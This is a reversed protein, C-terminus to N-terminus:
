RGPLPTEMPPSSASTLPRADLPTERLARVIRRGLGIGGYVLGTYLQVLDAGAALKSRVDAATRVGGVGILAKEPGLAARIRTLAATTLEFLHPGSLGGPEAAARGRLGPPRAITSNAYMLGDVDTGAVLEVTAMLAREDLDPALKVLIPVPCAAARADLVAALLQRLKSDHQLDRLGPTNPSSINVTLYDALPAFVRVGEAFDAAPDAADKNSGINVGVIGLGPTRAELRRRVVDHGPNNFGLRNILAREGHLRFLRPRPNGAQPRPTVTGVEVFGFGWALAKEFVEAGKDFGAAIGLPNAFHLGLLDRALEPTPVRGPAPLATLLRLAAGHSTEPPLLRLLATGARDLALRDILLDSAPM